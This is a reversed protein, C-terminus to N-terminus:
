RCTSAWGPWYNSGVHIRHSAWEQSKGCRDDVSAEGVLFGIRLTAELEEQLGLRQIALYGLGFNTDFLRLRFGWAITTPQRGLM